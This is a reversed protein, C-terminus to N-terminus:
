EGSVPVIGDLRTSSIVRGDTREFSIVMRVEEGGLDLDGWDLPLGYGWGLLRHPWKARLPIAEETSLSWEKILVPSKKGNEGRKLHYVKPLLTGEGFVGKNDPGILFLGGIYSGRVRSRDSTWIWGTYRNFTAVVKVAVV